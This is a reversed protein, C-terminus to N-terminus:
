HQMAYQDSPLLLRTENQAFEVKTLFDIFYKFHFTGDIERKAKKYAQDNNTHKPLISKEAVGICQYPKLVLKGETLQAVIGLQGKEHRVLM